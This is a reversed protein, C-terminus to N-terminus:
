SKAEKIWNNLIEKLQPSLSSAGIPFGMLYEADKPMPRGFIESYNKCGNHKMMSPCSYNAMTTPTHVFGKDNGFTKKIWTPTITFVKEIEASSPAVKYQGKNLHRNLLVRFAVAAAFPSQANGIAKLEKRRAVYEVTPLSSPSQAWCRAEFIHDHEHKIALKKLVDKDKVALLWFRDRRHDAGIDGCSLRCMHVEYGISELDRKAHQLAKETVNEGFVIPAKCDQTFKFMYDWLNKEAINKGHAAHSFAQCPFGGCLVDFKNIFDTGGLTTVDDYLPFKEMWGDQQRQRIVSQCFKDIEVGGVCHHDLLIGGYIGGGIGAFLHFESINIEPNMLYLLPVEM